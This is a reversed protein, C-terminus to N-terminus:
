GFLEVVNTDEEPGQRALRALYVNGVWKGIRQNAVSGGVATLRMSKGFGTDKKASHGTNKCWLVYEAYLDAAKMKVAKDPIVAEAIFELVNDSETQWQAIRAVSSPVVTYRFGNLRFRELGDLAWVLIAPGEKVIEDELNAVREHALFTRNFELACWRRFFSTSTDSPTFTNNVAMYFGIRMTTRYRDIGKREVDVPDGTALKKFTESLVVKKSGAELDLNLKKGVLPGLGFQTSIDSLSSSAVQSEHVLAQLVKGLTSKGNAGADNGMALIHVQYANLRGALMNGVWEQLFEVKQPYDADDGWIEYLFHFWRMDERRPLCGPDYGFPLRAETRIHLPGFREDNPRIHTAVGEDDFVVAGGAYAICPGTNAIMYLPRGDSGVGVESKVKVKTTVLSTVGNVDAERMRIPSLKPEGDKSAGASYSEGDFATAGQRLADISVVRWTGTDGFDTGYPDGTSKNRPRRDNVCQRLNTGDWALPGSTLMARYLTSALEVHSGRKFTAFRGRHQANEAFTWLFYAHGDTDYRADTEHVHGEDRCIVILKKRGKSVMVSLGKGKANLGSFFPCGHKSNFWRGEPMNRLLEIATGCCVDGFNHGIVTLAALEEHLKVPTIVGEIGALFADMDSAPVAPADPPESPPPIPTDENM